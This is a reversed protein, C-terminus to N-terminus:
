CIRQMVIGLVAQSRLNKLRAACADIRASVRDVAQRLEISELYRSFEMLEPLRRVDWALRRNLTPHFFGRLARDLRALVGGAGQLM